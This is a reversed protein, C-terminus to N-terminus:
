GLRDSLALRVLPGLGLDNEALGASEGGPGVNRDVHDSSAVIPKEREVELPGHRLCAQVCGDLLQRTAM